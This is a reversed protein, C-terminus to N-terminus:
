RRKTAYIGFGILIVVIVVILGIIIWTETSMGGIGGTSSTPTPTPSATTGVPTFIAQYRYIDGYGHNVNYPNDTPSWNTPSDGHSAQTGCITWHSFQWGASPTAKLNLSSADAL